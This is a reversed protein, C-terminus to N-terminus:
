CRSGEEVANLFVSELSPRHPTVSVVEANAALAERLVDDVRKAQVRLELRAGHGRVTAGFEAEFREALSAPLVKALSDGESGLTWAAPGSPVRPKAEAGKNEARNRRPRKRSSRDQTRSSKAGSSRSAPTSGDGSAASATDPQEDPTQESEEPRNAPIVPRRRRKPRLSLPLGVVADLRAVRASVDELRALREGEDLADLGGLLGAVTVLSEKLAEPLPQELARLVWPSLTAEAHKLRGIRGPEALVWQVTRRIPSLARDLEVANWPQENVEVSQDAETEM